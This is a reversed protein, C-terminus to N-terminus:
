IYLSQICTPPDHRGESHHSTTPKDVCAVLENLPSYQDSKVLMLHKYHKMLNRRTSPPTVEMLQLECELLRRQEVFHEVTSSPLRTQVLWIRPNLKRNQHHPSYHFQTGLKESPHLYKTNNWVHLVGNWTFYRLTLVESQIKRPDTLLNRGRSKRTINM